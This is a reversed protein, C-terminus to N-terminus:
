IELSTNTLNIKNNNHYNHVNMLLELYDSHTAKLSFRSILKDANRLFRSHEYKDHKVLKILSKWFKMSSTFYTTSKNKKILAIIEWCKNVLDVSMNANCIYTGNQFDISREKVFDTTILLAIQIGVGTKKM